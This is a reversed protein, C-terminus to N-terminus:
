IALRRAKEIGEGHLINKCLAQSLRRSASSSFLALDYAGARGNSRRGYAQMASPRHSRSGMERLNADMTTASSTISFRRSLNADSEIFLDNAIGDV